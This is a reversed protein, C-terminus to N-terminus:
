LGIWSTLTGTAPLSLGLLLGFGVWTVIGVIVGVILAVWWKKAGLAIASGSFLIMRKTMETM